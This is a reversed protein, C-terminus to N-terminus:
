SAMSLEPTRVANKWGAYEEARIRADPGTFIATFVEGDGETNIAEARYDGPQLRDEVVEYHLSETPM